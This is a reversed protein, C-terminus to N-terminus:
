ISLLLLLVLLWPSNTSLLSVVQMSQLRNKLCCICQMWWVNSENLMLNDQFSVISADVNKPWETKNTECNISHKKWSIQQLNWIFVPKKQERQWEFAGMKLPLHLLWIFWTMAFVVFNALFYPKRVLSSMNHIQMCIIPLMKCFYYWKTSPKLVSNKDLMMQRQLWKWWKCISNSGVFVTNGEVGALGVLNWYSKSWVISHHFFIRVNVILVLHVCTADAFRLCRRACMFFCSRMWNDYGNCEKWICNIRYTHRWTSVYNGCWRRSSLASFHWIM